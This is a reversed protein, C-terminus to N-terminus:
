EKWPFIMGRLTRKGVRERDDILLADWPIKRRNAEPHQELYDYKYLRLKLGVNLWVLITAIGPLLFATFASVVLVVLAGLGLGITFVTNDFFLLLMKRIIKRIDTDMRSQIPFFYLCALGWMLSIWFIFALAVLGLQSQLGGYFVYSLIFIHLGVIGALLLSTPATKRVYGWFDRFGPTGYDSIERAMHSAAGSYVFLLALCPILGLLLYPTASAALEMVGVFAGAVLIYGLNLIVVRFMNDWMDFFAKKILFGFM